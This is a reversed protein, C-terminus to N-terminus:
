SYEIKDGRNKNKLRFENFNPLLQRYYPVLDVGLKPHTHLLKQIFKCVIIMIDTDRTNLAIKLPMIILPLTQQIIETNNYEILEFSGM